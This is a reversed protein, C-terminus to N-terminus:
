NYWDILENGKDLWTNNSENIKDHLLYSTFLIYICITVKYLIKLTKREYQTLKIHKEYDNIVFKIRDVTKVKNNTVLCMNVFVQALDIIRPYYNSLGFDILYLKGNKDVITNGIGLDGHTFACPLKDISIKKFCEYVNKVVKMNKTSLYKYYKTYMNEFDLVGGSSNIYKPIYEINHMKVIQKVLKQLNVKTFSNATLANKENREIYQMVCLRYTVGKINMQCLNDNGCVYIDPVNANGNKAKKMRELIRICVRKSKKKNFIKVLYKKDVTNLIYNFDEFGKSIAISSQPKEFGYLKCIRNSITSLRVNLNIRKGRGSKDM